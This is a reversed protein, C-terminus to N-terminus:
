VKRQLSTLAESTLAREAALREAARKSRGEGSGFIAGEVTVEVVFLANHQPGDMSAVRYRPTDYGLGQVREQLESKPDQSDISDDIREEMISEVLARAAVMGGADYVAAVVAEVADALVNAQVQDAKTRAGRGLAICAGLTQARAWDALATANVLASRMRSLHGENADPFRAILSESVCLGLVSDGLFELRQNDACGVENAYSPHTLAEDLRPIAFESQVMQHLRARFQARAVELEDEFSM